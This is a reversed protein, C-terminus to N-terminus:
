PLKFFLLLVCCGFYNCSALMIIKAFFDVMMKVFDVKILIM